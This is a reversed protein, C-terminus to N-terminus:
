IKAKVYMSKWLFPFRGSGKFEIIEFEFERLLEILTKRSWFKIHGGDWLATFHNDLKNTLALMLNKFYGHYPTSIILQGGGNSLLIKKCFDIYGRPDYLHEIVETSIITDFKQSKLQKPLIGKSIDLVFFNNNHKKNAISIGQESADIGYIDYGIELLKNTINGNGCGMDLIHKNDKNLMKLLDTYLYKHSPVLNDEWGYEKYEGM